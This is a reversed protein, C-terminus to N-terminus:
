KPPNNLAAFIKLRWFLDDSDRLAQAMDAEAQWDGADAKKKLGAVKALLKDIKPKFAKGDDAADTLLKASEASFKDLDMERVVKPRFDTKELQALDAAQAKLYAEAQANTLGTFDYLAFQLHGVDPNLDVTTDVNYDGIAVNGGKVGEPAVIAASPGEGDGKAKDFIADYYYLYTDKDPIIKLTQPQKLDIRPTQCHREGQRHKAMTFFSPYCRLRMSVTKVTKGPQPKWSLYCLVHNSEPLMAVRLAVIADPHAWLAQFSGRPGSELPRMETLTYELADSGNVAVTIFGGWYWNGVWPDPMGFNGEASPHKDGHSPDTCGSYAFSYRAKGSDLTIQQKKVQHGKTDCEYTSAVMHPGSDTVSVSEQGGVASTPASGATVLAVAVLPAALTLIFGCILPRTM